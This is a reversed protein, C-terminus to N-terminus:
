AGARRLSRPGLLPPMRFPPRRDSSWMAPPAEVLTSLGLLAHDYEARRVSFREWALDRDEVVPLGATVLEDLADDFERRTVSSEKLATTIQYFGAIRCLVATGAQLFMWAAANGDSPSDIASMRLNAADLLTGAANVWSHAPNASRFFVLMAHTSHSEGVDVIWREWEPWADDLRDFGSFRHHRELLRLSSPPSGARADLMAVVLERRGFAAHIAPLFTIVLALLGVGVAAEMFAILTAGFGAPAAFGLTLLSSGSVTLARRVGDSEVAWFLAAGGLWASVLWAAPLLLVSLPAWYVLLRDRTVHDHAGRIRLILHFLRRSSVFVLRVFPVHVARPLVFARLASQVTLVVLTGGAIGVLVHVADM